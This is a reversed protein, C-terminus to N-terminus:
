FWQNGGGLHWVAIAKGGLSEVLKRKANMSVSDNSVFVKTGVKKIVEASTNDRVGGDYGNLAKIQDLTKIAIDSYSGQTATYGYSPIGIVVRDAPFISLMGSTWSNLWALPSVPTGGGYDWQWDYMMPTIYDIPLAVLNKYNFGCSLTVTTFPATTWNPGCIALKKGVGHLTNGLNTLFSLYNSYDKATWAGFGEIDIDIGTLGNNVVFTKLTNIVNTVKSSTAYMSRLGVYDGSVTVLQESSYAKIDKVNAASYANKTSFLDTPDENLQKLFGTPLLQFYEVRLVDIKNNHYTDAADLAPSGPYIWGHLKTSTTPITTPQLANIASELNTIETQVKTAASIVTPAKTADNQLVNLSTKLITLDTKLQLISTADM